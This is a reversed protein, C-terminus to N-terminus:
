ADAPFCATLAAKTADDANAFDEAIEIAALAEMLSPDKAAAEGICDCGSADTGNAEAYARCGDAIEQAVDGEAAFLMFALPAIFACLLTNM